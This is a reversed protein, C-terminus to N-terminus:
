WSAVPTTLHLSNNDGVHPEGGRCQHAAREKAVARSPYQSYSTGLTPVRPCLSSIGAEGGGWALRRSFANIIEGRYSLQQVPSHIGPRLLSAKGILFKM